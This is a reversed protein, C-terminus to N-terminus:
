DNLLHWALSTGVGPFLHKRLEKAALAGDDLRLAIERSVPRKWSAQLEAIEEAAMPEYGPLAWPKLTHPGYMRVLQQWSVAETRMGRKSSSRTWVDGSRHWINGDFDRVTPGSTWGHDRNIYHASPEEPPLERALRALMRRWWPDALYREAWDPVDRDVRISVNCPTCLMGRVAWDGVQGDHDIVLMGLTTEAGTSGCTACSYQCDALLKEFEACTLRYAQHRCTAHHPLTREATLNRGERKADQDEMSEIM